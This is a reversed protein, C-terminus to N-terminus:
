LDYPLGSAYRAGIGLGREYLFADVNAASEGYNMGTAVGYRAYNRSAARGLAAVVPDAAAALDYPLGSAYRAGIGLGREYLFADVNAASEGYNMGTAVGYRAYNRSALAAEVPDAAAGGAGPGYNVVPAAAAGKAAFAGSAEKNGYYSSETLAFKRNGAPGMEKEIQDLQARLAAVKADLAAAAKPDTPPQRSPVTGSSAGQLLPTAEPAAVGSSAVDSPRAM